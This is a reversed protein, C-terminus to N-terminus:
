RPTCLGSWQAARNEQGLLILNSSHVATGDGGVSTLTSQAADYAVLVADETYHVTMPPSSEDGEYRASDGEQAIVLAFALIPESVTVCSGDRTSCETTFRCDLIRPASSALAPGAALALLLAPLPRM